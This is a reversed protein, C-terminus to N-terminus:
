ADGLMHMQQKQWGIRRFELRGLVQPWEGIRHEDVPM